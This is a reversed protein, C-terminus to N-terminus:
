KGNVAFIEAAKDASGRSPEAGLLGFERELAPVSLLPSLEASLDYAEALPFQPPATREAAYYGRATKRVFESLLAASVYMKQRSESFIHVRAFSEEAGPVRVNGFVKESPVGTEMVARRIRGAYDPVYFPRPRAKAWFSLYREACFRLVAYASKTKNQPMRGNLFEVMGRCAFPPFKGRVLDGLASAYFLAFLTEEEKTGCEGAAEVIKELPSLDYRRDSFLADTRLEEACLAYLSTEALAQGFRHRMCNGSLLVFDPFRLPYGAFPAPAERGFCGEASPADPVAISVGGRVTAFFRAAFIAASGYGVAARVEDPMSFLGTWDDKICVCLPASGQLSRLIYEASAQKEKESYVFVARCGAPICARLLPALEAEAPIIKTEAGFACVEKEVDELLSRM